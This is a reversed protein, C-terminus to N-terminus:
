LAQLFEIWQGLNKDNEHTTKPLLLAITEALDGVAHYCEDFLWDPIGALEQCWNRLQKTSVQRKPRRHSFIAVAWVKEEDAAKEFFDVLAEVKDGTKNSQDLRSILEAFHKM